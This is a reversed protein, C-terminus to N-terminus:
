QGSAFGALAAQAPELEKLPPVVLLTGEDIPSCCPRRRTAPAISCSDVDLPTKVVRPEEGKAIVLLWCLNVEDVRYRFTTRAGPEIASQFEESKPSWLPLIRTATTGVAIIHIPEPGANQVVIERSTTLRFFRAFLVIPLLLLLAAIVGIWPFPARSAQRDQGMRGSGM